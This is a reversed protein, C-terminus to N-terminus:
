LHTLLVDPDTLMSAVLSLFRAAAEGDLARHDFALSLTAVHRIDIRHDVVWPRESVNGVCLIVVEGPNLLPVGADVGFVGVNTITITGSTLHEVDTRGARATTTLETIHRALELLSLHEVDKINPVLLGRDSAVAIGLNTHPHTISRESKDDWTANVSPYVAIATVLAKAALTLPTLRLGDFSPSNRLKTLLKMSASVDVTVFVTAQPARASSTMAAAMRRHQGTPPASKRRRRSATRAHPGYGVLVSPASDGPASDTDIRIIPSGVQVTSGPDALLATVTGGYPSPLEVLAKATEVDAVVQDLDVHDGVEVRWSVLEASTLGEGLDPLVFEATSM